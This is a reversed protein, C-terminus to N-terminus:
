LSAVRAALMVLGLTPAATVMGMILVVESGFSFGPMASKLMVQAPRLAGLKDDKEATASYGTKLYHMIGALGVFLAAIGCVVVVTGSGQFVNNGGGLQVLTGSQRHLSHTSRQQDQDQGGAHVGQM